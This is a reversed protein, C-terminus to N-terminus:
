DVRMTNIKWSSYDQLKNIKLTKNIVKTMTMMKKDLIYHCFRMKTFMITQKVINFLLQRAKRRLIYLNGKTKFYCKNTMWQDLKSSQRHNHLILKDESTLNRRLLIFIKCLIHYIIMMVIFSVRMNNTKFFDRLIEQMSHCRRQLLSWHDQHIPNRFRLRLLRHSLLYLLLQFCGRREKLM